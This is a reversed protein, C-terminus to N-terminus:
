NRIVFSCLSYSFEGLMLKLKDYYNLKKSCTLCNIVTYPCFVVQCLVVPCFVLFALGPSFVM